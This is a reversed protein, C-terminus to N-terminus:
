SGDADQRRQSRPQSSKVRSLDCTRFGGRGDIIKAVEPHGEDNKTGLPAWEAGEVLARLRAKEDDGRRMQHAYVRLTFKADTHGLQGMVYVPDKGLAFLLSCFTHRLKHPTVGSPLPVLDQAVLLEDARRVVPRLVRERVNDKDRRTGAATPFVPDDAGSARASAKHALLEDRLAPVIDVERASADTKTGTTILGRALDVDRWSLDCAETVRLGAFLLTAVLARRGGTRATPDRDLERGAALLSGIQDAGDLHVPRAKAVKLRRNRGRAPNVAVLEYEVALELIQALRTITKNIMEAGLPQPRRPRPPREQGSALRDVSRQWAALEGPWREIEAARAQGERVKHQRYRDVEARTIQSLRHAHFFPLLHMTLEVEYAAVTTPRLELKKAAWWESAFEHFTPDEVREPAPEPTPPQWIGRRVDALVNQLETEARARSWGEATTGLTLYQRRGNARFRLAYTVGTRTKKEVVTGTAPRPM